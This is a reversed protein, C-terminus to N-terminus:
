KILIYDAPEIEALRAALSAIALNVNVNSELMAECKGISRIAAIAKRISGTRRALSKIIEQQDENVINEVDPGDKGALVSLCDDYFSAVLSLITKISRRALESGSGVPISTEQGLKAWNDALQAALQQWEQALEQSNASSLRVLCKGLKCKVDYVGIHSLEVAIGLRGRAFRALFEARQGTIGKTGLKDLIFQQPLASFRIQCCRSRITPVITRLSNTLLIIFTQSPPEELTKLLANQAQISMKHAEHVVFLKARGQQPRLAAKNVLRQRIVDIGLETAKHNEKGRILTVLEKYISHFDPHTQADMLTCQQCKGCSDSFGALTGQEIMVPQECLLLKSLQTAALSKGVGDPGVFIYGHAMRRSAIAQGLLRIAQDQHKIELISMPKHTSM